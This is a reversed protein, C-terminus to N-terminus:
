ILLASWVEPGAIGDVTLGKKSQYRRVATETDSGYEGDVGYKGVSCGNGELLIQLSKVSNGKSGRRLIPLDM